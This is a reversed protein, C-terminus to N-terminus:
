ELYLICSRIKFQCRHPSPSRSRLCQIVFPMYLKRPFWNTRELELGTSPVEQHFINSFLHMGLPFVLNFWLVNWSSICTRQGSNYKHSCKLCKWTSNARKHYYADEWMLIHDWFIQVIKMTIKNTFCWHFYQKLHSKHLM